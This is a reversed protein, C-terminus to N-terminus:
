CSAVPYSLREFMYGRQTGRSFWNLVIDHKELLTNFYDIVQSRQAADLETFWSEIPMIGLSQQAKPSKMAQQALAPLRFFGFLTADTHQSNDLLDLIKQSEDNAEVFKPGVHMKNSTQENNTLSIMRTM